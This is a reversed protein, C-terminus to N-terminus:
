NENRLTEALMELALPAPALHNVGHSLCDLGTLMSVHSPLTRPSSAVTNAFVVGLREAWRDINPSTTTHYGYTALRDARLTDLSIVLVNPTSPKARGTRVVPNAVVGFGAFGKSENECIVDFKVTQVPGQSRLDIRAERWGPDPGDLGAHSEAEFLSIWEGAQNQGSVDFRLVGSGTGVFGFSFELDRGVPDDISWVIPYGAAVVVSNRLDDDIEVKWNTKTASAIDDEGYVYQMGQISHVTTKGMKPPAIDIRIKSVQGQWEPHDALSAVLEGSSSEIVVTSKPESFQEGPGAWFIKPKRGTMNPRSVVMRLADIGEADWAVDRSISALESGELIAIRDGALLVRGSPRATWLEAATVLDVASVPVAERTTQIDFLVETPHVIMRSPALGEHQDTTPDVRCGMHMIGIALALISIRNWLPNM